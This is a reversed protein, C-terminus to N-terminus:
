FCRSRISSGREFRGWEQLADGGHDLDLCSIGQRSPGKTKVGPGGRALDHASVHLDGRSWSKQPRVRKKFGPKFASAPGGAM